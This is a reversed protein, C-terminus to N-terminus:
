FVFAPKAPLFGPLPAVSADFAARVGVVGDALIHLLARAVATEGVIAVLRGAEALQRFLGQPVQAVRGNIVIVDFPGHAPSGEELPGCVVEVNSIAQNKLTEQAGAALDGDCELATVSAALLALVATSYGTGCGVDLVRDAQRLAALQLLRAFAMPEMLHRAPSAASRPKIVIDEDMYAVSRRSDPVYAERPVAAMAGLVRDDTIGNPRVQSEIMNVRATAFNMPQM